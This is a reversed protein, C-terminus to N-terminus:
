GNLSGVMFIEERPDVCAGWNKIYLHETFFNLFIGIQSILEMHLSKIKDGRIDYIQKQVM